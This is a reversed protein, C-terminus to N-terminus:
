RSPGRGPTVASAAPVGYRSVDLPGPGPPRLEHLVDATSRRALQTEGTPIIGTPSCRCSWPRCTTPCSTTAAPSRPTPARRASCTCPQGAALRGPAADATTRTATVLDVVYQKVADSAYVSRVTEILKAVTDRTPSRPAARELPFAGGHSDLM